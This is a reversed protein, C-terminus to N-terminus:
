RADFIKAIASLEEHQQRLTEPKFKSNRRRVLVGNGVSHVTLSELSPIRQALSSSFYQIVSTPDEGSLYFKKSFEPNHPLDIDEFGIMQALKDAWNESRLSFKPISPVFPLFCGIYCHTHSNKGSRTTYKYEFIWESGSVGRKEFVVPFKRARCHSPFLVADDLTSTLSVPLDQHSVWGIRQGAMLVNERRQKEFYYVIGFIALVIALGYLFTM